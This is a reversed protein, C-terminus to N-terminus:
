SLHKFHHSRCFIIEGFLINQTQTKLVKSQLDSFQLIEDLIKTKLRRLNIKERSEIIENKFLSLTFEIPYSLSAMYDNQIIKM